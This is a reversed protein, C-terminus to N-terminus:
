VFSNICLVLLSAYLKLLFGHLTRAHLRQVGMKELISHATEIAHRHQRLLALQESTNPLMNRRHLPTVTIDAWLFEHYEDRDCNYGKDALLRAGTPLACCLDHLPWLDHASAPLLTYTLPTGATNCVWHLRFGYFSLRKAACYGHYAKGKVKRCRNARAPQCIPLPMSDIVALQRSGVQEMVWDLLENLTTRLQHLRRNFRSVSIRHIDKSLILISLAREHHNQFFKAALVAITLVESASITVRVDDQWNMAKLWDDILVYSTVIYHANM